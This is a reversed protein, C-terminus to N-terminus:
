FRFLVGARFQEIHLGDIDGYNVYEVFWNDARVGGGFLPQTAKDTLAQDRIVVSDDLWFSGAGGRVYVRFNEALPWQARLSLGLSYGGFRTLEGFDGFGQSSEVKMLEVDIATYRSLELGALISYAIENLHPDDPDSTDADFNGLALGLSWRETGGGTDVEGQVASVAISLGCAVVTNVVNKGFLDIM